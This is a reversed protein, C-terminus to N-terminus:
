AYINARANEVDKDVNKMHIKEDDWCTECAGNSLIWKVETENDMIGNFIKEAREKHFESTTIMIKPNKINETKMWKKLYAFNEATNRANEDMVIQLNGSVVTTPFRTFETSTHLVTSPTQHSKSKIQKEMKSAETDYTIIANKVGGTLFWVVSTDLKDVYDVATKIRDNQLEEMGCGLVVMIKKQNNKEIIELPVYNRYPTSTGRSFETSTRLKTGYSSPTQRKHIYVFICIIVIQYLTTM